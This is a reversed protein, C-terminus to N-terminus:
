PSEEKEAEDLGPPTKECLPLIGALEQDLLQFNVMSTRFLLCELRDLRAAAAAVGSHYDDGCELVSRHTNAIHEDFKLMLCTITEEMKTMRAEIQGFDRASALQRRARRVPWLSPATCDNSHESYM